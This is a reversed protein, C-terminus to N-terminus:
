DQNLIPKDEKTITVDKYNDPNDDQQEAAKTATDSPKFNGTYHTLQDNKFFVSVRYNKLPDNGRQLRFLYDWRDDRFTSQILSTGMIFQVQEKSMGPQLQDIMEQKVINGQDIPLRYVGPFEFNTCASLLIASAFIALRHAVRM